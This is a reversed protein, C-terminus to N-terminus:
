RSRRPTSCSSTRRWRARTSRSGRRRSGRPWGGRTRMTTQSAISTTISRTSARRRGRDRGPADRRRVPAQATAGEGDERGVRGRGRGAPLRPGQLPLPHGHRLQPRDGGGAVGSGVSANLLRAGDLHVTLGAGPRRSRRGCSSGRGSRAAAATTRTRSASSGRARSTRTTRTSRRLAGGRARVRRPRGRDGEHGPGLAGGAGGAEYRFVHAGAEAVVEDGPESSLRLAIQNAMTATPVFVAAEQGLLAAASEELANVTPDERKQEDGVEAEAMARRMGPSPRTATDSRLDIVRAIRRARARAGGPAPRRPAAGGRSAAPYSGSPRRLRPLWSGGGSGGACASPGSMAASCSPWRAWSPRSAKGPRSCASGSRRGLLSAPARRDSARAALRGGPLGAGDERGDDRAGRPDPSRDARADAQASAQAPAGDDARRGARRRRPRAAVGELSM